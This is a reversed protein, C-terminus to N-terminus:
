NEPASGRSDRSLWVQLQMGTGTARMAATALRDLPKPLFTECAFTQHTVLRYGVRKGHREFSALSFEYLHYPPHMPSLNTVYDLGQVRYLLNLMRGVLWRSSPVEVHIFGGPALWTLAQEIAQAPDQLHELVAGFTVFDFHNQDYEADEVGTLQLRDPPIGGAIARAHFAPSPELGFAEFGGRELARMTKGIGAGIDLARPKGGGTWASRFWGLVDSLYDQEQVFYGPRWYDEPARDYLQGLSEPVPRPNSYILGCQRCQVVTTAIATLHRPRVGQHTNLRRGLVRVESGLCMVCSDVPEFRFTLSSNVRPM